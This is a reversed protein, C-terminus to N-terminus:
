FIVQIGQWLLVGFGAMVFVINAVMSKKNGKNKDEMADFLGKFTWFLTMVSWGIRDNTPDEDFLYRIYIFLIIVLTITRFTNWKKSLAEKKM